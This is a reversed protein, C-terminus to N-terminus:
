FISFMKILKTQIEMAVSLMYVSTKTYTENSHCIVKTIHTYVVYFIFSESFRIVFVGSSKHSHYVNLKDYDDNNDM